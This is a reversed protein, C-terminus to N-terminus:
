GQNNNKNNCIDEDKKKESLRILDIIKPMLDVSTSYDLYWSMAYLIMSSKPIGRKIGLEKFQEDIDKPVNLIVRVTNDRKIKEREPNKM